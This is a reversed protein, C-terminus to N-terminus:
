DQFVNRIQKYRFVAYSNTLGLIRNKFMKGKIDITNSNEDDSVYTDFEDQPYCFQEYFTQSSQAFESIDKEIEPSWSMVTRGIRTTRYDYFSRFRKLLDFVDKNYVTEPSLKYFYSLADIMRMVSPDAENLIKLFKRSFVSDKSEQCNIWIDTVHDCCEKLISAYKCSLFQHARKLKAYVNEKTVILVGDLGRAPRLLVDIDTRYPCGREKIELPALSKWKPNKLLQNMKDVRVTDTNPDYTIIRTTNSEPDYEFGSNNDHSETFQEFIRKLTRKIEHLVRAIDNHYHEALRRINYTAYSCGKDKQYFSIPRCFRSFFENLRNSMDNAHQDVDTSEADAIERTTQDDDKPPRVVTKHRYYNQLDVASLERCM